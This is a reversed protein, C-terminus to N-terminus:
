ELTYFFDMGLASIINFVIIPLMIGSFTIIAILIHPNTINFYNICIFRVGSVIIIHWIYIYLSHYGVFRLIQFVNFRQLLISLYILFTSGVAGLTLFLFVNPRETLNLWI